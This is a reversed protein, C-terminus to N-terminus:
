GRGPRAQGPMAQSGKSRVDYQTVKQYLSNDAGCTNGRHPLDSPFAPPRGARGPGEGLVCPIWSSCHPRSDSGTDRYPRIRTYLYRSQRADKKRRVAEIDIRRPAVQLM